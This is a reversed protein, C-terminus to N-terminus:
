RLMPRFMLCGAFSGGGFLSFQQQPRFTFGVRKGEANTLYVRTGDRFPTAAFFLGQEELPNVPITERVGADQVDLSWGFGFDGSENANRTDYNRTVTISTGAIPITLDVTRFAFPGLKLQGALGLPLTKASVNGSLDQALIRIVYDDNNLMTPDFTALVADVASANSTILTRYDPDDAAPQNVDVLDARGYDIRYFQLNDDTVSGVIDTLSTVIANANPSNLTITPGQTDAPDFVRLVASATGVNGSADRVSAQLINQGPRMGHLTFSHYADLVQPVGDLTLVVDVVGVDDSAQVVVVSDQGLVLPNSSLQLEVLPATQDPIVSLIYTQTATAGFSDTVSVVVQNSLEVTPDTTWRIRGWADISMGVPAVLLHFELPDQETDDVQVDYRYIGGLSITTPAASTIVPAQNSRAQVAFRQVSVNGATDVAAVRVLHSGAQAATATWTILGSQSDIQMGAPAEILAFTITDGEPDLAEVDYRYEAEVRAKFLARSTVIPEKNRMMQSVLIDFTQSSSNGYTDAVDVTVSVTGLQALTPMWRVIGRVSDITMGAPANSLSYSLSDNEPDIARVGYVYREAVAAAHPARSLITPGLNAGSVLLSFSQLAQRGTPDEASVVFRQLGLEEFKPTWRLTGYREDLSAGRPSDVLTWRVPDVDADNAKLNYAFAEGVTARFASPPSVIQPVHNENVSTVEVSFSQETTGGRGDSFILKVPQSGLQALTPMWSLSRAAGDFSMGVPAESLVISLPDGNADSADIFYIWDQGAAIRTRPQSNVEPAVNILTDVVQLRFQQQSVGGRADRVALEVQEDGQRTPTFSLVASADSDELKTLTFGSSPSLLEFVLQDGDADQAHLRYEWPQGLGATVIPTSTIIPATNSADVAIQFSQLSIGSSSGDRVRIVVQQMGSQDARPLWALQGTVSDIVMGTPGLPLDYALPDGNPDRAIAQYLLKTGVSAVNPPSSVFFPNLNAALSQGGAVDITFQQIDSGGRGDSVQVIVREQAYASAAVSWQVLGTAVNITMGSPADLLKFSLMDDIADVANVQYVYNSGVQATVVPQSTIVPALNDFVAISFRQLDSGGRPDLVQVDITHAGLDANTTSWQILGSSDITMGTPATLLRYTLAEADADLAIVQYSVLAVSTALPPTSVIVPPLNDAPSVVLLTFAQRAIGGRADSVQLVVQHNGLQLATPVWQILGSGSAISMGSPASLLSFNLSDGDADVATPAYPYGVGVEALGVPLSTFVPSRNALALQATLSFRQTSVALRSDAVQVEVTYVGDESANPTWRILGTAPDITMSAPSENLSFRLADGNPDVAAVQYNYERQLDANTVPLSTIQPAENLKGLFQLEYTFQVQNPNYFAASLFGSQGRPVLSGGTVLGTFDYYPNGEPTLGDADRVLIKPDSINTIAVFLPVDALYQGGNTVAAEAFLTRSSQNYSTRAYDVSFSGSVDVLSAFDVASSSVQAGTLVIRQSTSQGNSDIATFEYENDGPGVFLSVFFNGAADVTEIPQGNVTILDLTANPFDALAAGNAVLTSGAPVSSGDLPAAVFITPLAASGQWDVISDDLLQGVSATVVDRGPTTSIYSFQVQGNADSFGFNRRTNIGDVAFDVRIGAVPQGAADSARATFLLSNNMLPNATAPTLVVSSVQAVPSLSQGGVYGYSDFSGFGYVFVGFPLPGNLQYGGLEIPVQAGYFGSSGIATFLNGDIPTGNLEIQGIAGAPSVINIFNRDFRGANLIASEVPTSVTYNALFQEFPPVIMMMPDGLFSANGGPATRYYNQSHAYQAVLIPRSSEIHAAGVIAQEFFQGRNLTAVVVSNVTVQTNDAQALFRFRDGRMSDTALPVTVFERGWTNTPPLQEVLHDAAFFQSPIFAQAIAELFRSPNLAPSLRVPLM